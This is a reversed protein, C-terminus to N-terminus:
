GPLWMLCLPHRIRLSNGWLGSYVNRKPQRLATLEELVYKREKFSDMLIPAEYSAHEVFKLQPKLQVLEAIRNQYWDSTLFQEITQM